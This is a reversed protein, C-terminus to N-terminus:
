GFKLIVGVAIGMMAIGLPMLYNEFRDCLALIYKCEIMDELSRELLIQVL